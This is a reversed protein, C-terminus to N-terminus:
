TQHFAPFCYGSFSSFISSRILSSSPSLCYNDSRDRSSDFKTGDMFTGVYHISVKDLCRSSLNQCKLPTFIHLSSSFVGGKKPFNIGDGPTITETIFSKIHLFPPPLLRVYSSASRYSTFSICDGQSHQPQVHFIYLTNLTLFSSPISCM